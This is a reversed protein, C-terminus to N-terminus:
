VKNFLWITILMIKYIVWVVIVVPWCMSGMMIITKKDLPELSEDSSSPLSTFKKLLIPTVFIGILYILLAIM